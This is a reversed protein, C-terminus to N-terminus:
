LNSVVSLTDAKNQQSFSELDNCPIKPLMDANTRRNICDNGFQHSQTLNKGNKFFNLYGKEIKVTSM